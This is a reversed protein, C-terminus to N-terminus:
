FAYHDHPFISQGVKRYTMSKSLKAYDAGPCWQKWHTLEGETRDSLSSGHLNPTIADMIRCGVERACSGSRPVLRGLTINRQSALSQRM